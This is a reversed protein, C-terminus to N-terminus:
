VNQTIKPNFIGILFILMMAVSFLVDFGHGDITLAWDTLTPVYALVGSVLLKLGLLFIVNYAAGTLGPFRNMLSTFWQAVFRMSIIGIFVGTMILWINNTLAVAAFVNDLSFALDMIEVMLVTRWFGPVTKVESESEKILYHKITLWILYGGGIIKIWMFGVLWAALILCIGRFVFAGILGYRLAKPRQDRPLDKVMVALVAANDISLLSELIIINLIILFETM